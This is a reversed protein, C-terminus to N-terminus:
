QQVIGLNQQKILRGHAKIGRRPRRDGVMNMVKRRLPETYEPCRVQGVFHAIAILQDDQMPAANQGPPLRPIKTAVM